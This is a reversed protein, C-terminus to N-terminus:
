ISGLDFEVNERRRILIKATPNPILNVGMAVPTPDTGPVLKWEYKVLLHCLVVKLNTAAFFRGPCAHKGFGFGFQNATSSVLQASAAGGPQSRLKVFRAVDWEDPNEYVAPNRMARSDVLTRTGKKLLLGNSLRVDNLVLRRLMIHEIPKLRQTEKLGSDLLQMKYFATKSMGEARLLHIVEERVLQMCEEHHALDIMFQKLLDSTTHFAVLGMMMQFDALLVEDCIKGRAAAEEEMWGFADEFKPAERGAAIAAQRMERRKAIVLAILRRADKLLSRLAICEPIVWHAFKRLPKPVMNLVRSGYLWNRQYQRTIELWEENRCLEEGLFIRAILRPVIEGVLPTVEMEHWDTSDGVLKSLIFESENSLAKTMEASPKVMNKKIVSVMMDDRCIFLVPEFGPIEGHFDLRFGKLFHMNQENRIDEILHPPLVIRDGFDTLVRWPQNPYKKRAEKMVSLPSTWFIRKAGITSFVGNAYIYPVFKIGKNSTAWTYITMIAMVGVVFWYSPFQASPFVWQTDGQRALPSQSPLSMTPFVVSKM